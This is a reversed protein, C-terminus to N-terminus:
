YYVNLDNIKKDLNVDEFQIKSENIIDEIGKKEKLLEKIDEEKSNMFNTMSIRENEDNKSNWNQEADALEKIEKLKNAIKNETKLLDKNLINITQKLSEQKNSKLIEDLKNKIKKYLDDEYQLQFQSGKVVDIKKDIYDFGIWNYKVRIIYCEMKNPYMKIGLSEGKQNESNKNSLVYDLKYSFLKRAFEINMFYNSTDVIEEANEQFNIKKFLNFM